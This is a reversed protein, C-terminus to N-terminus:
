KKTKYTIGYVLMHCIYIDSLIDAYRGSIYEATKIKGGMLLGM